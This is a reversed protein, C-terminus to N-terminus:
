YREKEVCVYIKEFKWCQQRQLFECFYTDTGFFKWVNNFNQTFLVGRVVPTIEVQFQEGVVHSQPELTALASLCRTSTRLFSLKSVKQNM